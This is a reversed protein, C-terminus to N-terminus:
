ALADVEAQLKSMVQASKIAEEAKTAVTVTKTVRIDIDGFINIGNESSGKHNSFDNVYFGQSYQVPQVIAGESNRIVLSEAFQAATRQGASISYKQEDTLVDLLKNSYKKCIRANPKTGLLQAVQEATTGEPVNIWGVRTSEYSEGLELKFDEVAFLSDQMSNDVRKSPYTTTVTQRIQAQYIGEKYESATVKDVSLVAFEKTIGNLSQKM